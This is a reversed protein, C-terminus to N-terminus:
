VQKRKPHQGVSNGYIFVKNFMLLHEQPALPGWPCSVAGSSGDPVSNRSWCPRQLGTGGCSSQRQQRVWCPLAETRPVSILHATRSLRSVRAPSPPLCRRSTIHATDQDPRPAGAKRFHAQSHFTTKPTRLLSRMEQTGPGWGMETRVVGQCSTSPPRCCCVSRRRHIPASLLHVHAAGLQM